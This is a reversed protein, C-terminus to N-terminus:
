WFLATAMRDKLEQLQRCHKSPKIYAYSGSHLRRMDNYAVISQGWDWALIEADDTRELYMACVYITRPQIDTAPVRLWLDDAIFPTYSTRVSKTKVDVKFTEISTRTRLRLSFDRGGDGRKRLLCDVSHGFENAFAAEGLLGRRVTEAKALNEAYQPNYTGNELSFQIRAAAQESAM